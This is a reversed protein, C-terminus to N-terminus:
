SPSDKQEAILFSHLDEVSSQAKQIHQVLLTGIDPLTSDLLSAGDLCTMLDAVALASRLPSNIRDILEIIKPKM